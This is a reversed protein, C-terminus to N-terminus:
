IGTVGSILQGDAHVPYPGHWQHSTDCYFLALSDGTEGGRSRLRVIAVLPGPTDFGRSAQILSVSLPVRGEGFTFGDESSPHGHRGAVTGGVFAPAAEYVVAGRHWPFAPDDNDRWYHVLKEGHPVLLEFNSRKQGWTSQILAPHGTVGSIAQGDAYLPYPGHWQHAGDCYFLVLSDGVPGGSGQLRVVAVLPGPTDFGRHAQLLCVSLPIRERGVSLAEESSGEGHRGAVATGVFAPAAEYVVAGRHWPFAPKDNDRWYHVLKGGQPVLLEFNARQQGWTSQILAPHGTIGSIPQGNESLPYPGHWQHNGDCYFLVLSDGAPGGSGRLRVVAVFPGPTDFGRHAQLLSVGLPVREPGVTVGEESSVQGHRGAVATGVFAPAAEYVVAGKHWPFGAADNDRWYHVLKDGQPVLLEFNARNQGWTSQALYGSHSDQIGELDVQITLDAFHFHDDHEGPRHYAHGVYWFVLDGYSVDENDHFGLEGKDFPWPTSEESRHFRRVAVDLTSFGDAGADASPFIWVQRGTDENRIVWHKDAGTDKKDNAENPYYSWNGNSVAYVRNNDPGDVDFDLRWYPHHTHEMNIAVGKSGVRARITGTESLYWEQLLHYAGIRAYVNMRLWRVGDQTFEVLGVYENNTEVSRVLGYTNRDLVSPLAKTPKWYIQDSYPGAGLGFETERGAFFGIVAGAVAGGPGGIAGGAAAGAGAGAIGGAVSGADLPGGDRLYKVRIVPLSLKGIVQVGQYTGGLLALGEHDSVAWDFSWDTWDVHGARVDPM